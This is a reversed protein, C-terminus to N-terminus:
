NDELLSAYMLLALAQQTHAQAATAQVQYVEGHSGDLMDEAAQLHEQVRQAIGVVREDEKDSEELKLDPVKFRKM